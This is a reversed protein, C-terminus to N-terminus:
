EYVVGLVAGGNSIGMGLFGLVGFIPLVDV